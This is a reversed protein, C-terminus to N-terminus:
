GARVAAELKRRIHSVLWIRDGQKSLDVVEHYLLFALLPELADPTEEPYLLKVPSIGGDSQTLTAVCQAVRGLRTHRVRWQKPLRDVAWLVLRPGINAIEAVILVRLFFRPFFIGGISDSDTVAAELVSGRLWAAIGFFIPLTFVAIICYAGSFGQDLILSMSFILFCLTVFMPGLLSLVMGGILAAYTHIEHTLQLKKLFPLIVRPDVPKVAIAKM